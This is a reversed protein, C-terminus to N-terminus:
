IFPGQQGCITSSLSVTESSMVVEMIARGGTTGTRRRTSVSRMHLWWTPQAQKSPHEAVVKAPAHNHHQKCAAKLREATRAPRYEGCSGM